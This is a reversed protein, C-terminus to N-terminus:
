GPGRSPNSVTALWWNGLGAGSSCGRYCDCRALRIGESLPPQTADADIIVDLDLGVEVADGIAEGAALDLDPQRRAGDLDKDLALPDGRMQAGAAIVAMGSDGVVHRRAVPAIGVPGDLANAALRGHDTRCRGGQALQDQLAPWVRFLAEAGTEANDAQHLREAGIPEFSRGCPCNLDACEGVARHARDEVVLEVALSHVPRRGVSDRDKV